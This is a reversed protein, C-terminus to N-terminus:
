WRGEQECLVDELGPEAIVVAGHDMGLALLESERGLAMPTSGPEPSM